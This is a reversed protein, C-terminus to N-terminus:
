RALHGAQKLRVENLLVKVQDCLEDTGGHVCGHKAPLPM